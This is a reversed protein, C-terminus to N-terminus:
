DVDLMSMKNNNLGFHVEKGSSVYVINDSHQKFWRKTCQIHNLWNNGNNKIRCKSHVEADEDLLGLKKLTQRPHVRHKIEDAETM